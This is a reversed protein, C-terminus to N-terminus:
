FPSPASAFPDAPPNTTGIAEAQANNLTTKARWVGEYEEAKVSYTGGIKVIDGVSLGHPDNFFASFYAAGTSGDQKTFSEKVTAGAGNFFVNTVEAERISIWAM